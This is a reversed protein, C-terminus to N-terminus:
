PSAGGEEDFLREGDIEYLDCGAEWVSRKIWTRKGAKVSGHIVFVGPQMKGDQKFKSVMAMRSGVPVYIREEPLPNNLNVSKAVGTKLFRRRRVSPSLWGLLSLWCRRYILLLALCGVLWLANTLLGIIIDRPVLVGRVFEWLANM